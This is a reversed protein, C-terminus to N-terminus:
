PKLAVPVRLSLNRSRHPTPLVLIIKPISTKSPRGSPDIFANKPPSHRPSNLMGNTKKEKESKRNQPLLWSSNKNQNRDYKQM